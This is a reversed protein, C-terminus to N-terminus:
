NAAMIYWYVGNSVLTAFKGATGALIPTGATSSGLPVVNSAVSALSYAGTNRFTIERGAWSAADPLTVNCSGTILVWNDTPGLTFNSSKSVPVTRGLAGIFRTFGSSSVYVWETSNAALTVANKGRIVLNGSM